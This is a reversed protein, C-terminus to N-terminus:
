EKCNGNSGDGDGKDKSQNKNSDSINFKIAARTSNNEIIKNIEYKRIKDEIEAYAAHIRENVGM